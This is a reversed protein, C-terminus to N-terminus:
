TTGEVTGGANSRESPDDEFGDFTLVQEHDTCDDRYDYRSV